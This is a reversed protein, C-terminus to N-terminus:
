SNIIEKLQDFNIVWAENQDQLIIKDIDRIQNMFNEDGLQYGTKQAYKTMIYTLKSDTQYQGCINQGNGITLLSLDELNDCKYDLTMIGNKHINRMETLYSQLVTDSSYINIPNAYKIHSYDQNYPNNAYSIYPSDVYIRNNISSNVNFKVEQNLDIFNPDFSMKYSYFGTNLGKNDFSINYNDSTMNKFSNCDYYGINSANINGFTQTVSRVSTGIYGDNPYLAFYIPKSSPNYAKGSITYTTLNQTNGSNWYTDYYSIPDNALKSFKVTNYRDCYNIQNQSYTPNLLLGFFDDWGIASTKLTPSLVLTSLLLLTFVTSLVLSLKSKTSFLNM